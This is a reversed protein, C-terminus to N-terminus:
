HFAESAARYFVYRARFPVRLLEGRQSASCGALPMGGTAATRRMWRVGQLIGDQWSTLGDPLTPRTADRM